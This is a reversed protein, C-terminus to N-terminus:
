VLDIFSNLSPRLELQIVICRHNTFCGVQRQFDCSGFIFVPSSENVFGRRLGLREGRRRRRELAAMENWKPKVGGGGPRRARQGIRGMGGGSGGSAARGRAHLAGAALRAGGSRRRRRGRCRPCSSPRGLPPRALAAEEVRRHEPRSRAAGDADADGAGKGLTYERAGRGAAM